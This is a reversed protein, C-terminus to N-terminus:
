FLVPTSEVPSGLQLHLLNFYYILYEQDELKPNWREGPVKSTVYFNANTGFYKDKSIIIKHEKFKQQISHILFNLITNIKM